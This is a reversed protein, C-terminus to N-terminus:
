SPKMLLKCQDTSNDITQSRRSGGGTCGPMTGQSTAQGQLMMERGKNKNIECQAAKLGKKDGKRFALQKGKLIDKLQTM